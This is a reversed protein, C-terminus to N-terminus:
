HCLVCALGVEPLVPDNCVLHNMQSKGRDGVLMVPDFLADSCIDFWDRTDLGAIKIDLRDPELQYFAAAPAEAIRHRPAPDYAYTPVCM